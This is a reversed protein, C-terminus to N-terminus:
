RQQVISRKWEEARLGYMVRHLFRVNLFEYDRLEGRFWIGLWYGEERAYRLRTREIFGKSDEETLTMSPIRLWAGLHERNRDILQFLAAADNSTLLSIYASNTDDLAHKFMM